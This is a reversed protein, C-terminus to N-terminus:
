TLPKGCYPCTGWDVQAARGCNACARAPTAPLEAKPGHGASLNALGWVALVVLGVPILGMWAMGLWGGFPFFGPMHAVRMMPHFGFAGGRGWMWGTTFLPPVILVLALLVALVIWWRRTRSM